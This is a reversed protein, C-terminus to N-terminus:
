NVIYHPTITAGVPRQAMGGGRGEGRSCPQFHLTFTFVPVSTGRLRNIQEYLSKFRELDVCWKSLKGPQSANTSFNPPTYCQNCSSSGNSLVLCSSIYFDLTFDPIELECQKLFEACVQKCPYVPEGLSNCKPAVFSCEITEALGDTSCNKVQKFLAKMELAVEQQLIQTFDEPFRVTKDYGAKMCVEFPSGELSVCPDSPTTCLAPVLGCLLVFSSLATTCRCMTFQKWADLHKKIVIESKDM